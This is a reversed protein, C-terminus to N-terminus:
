ISVAEYKASFEDPKCIDLKGDDPNQIIWDDWDLRCDGERTIICLRDVGRDNLDPFLTEERLWTPWVSCTRRCEKTMQFAEVVIPKTRYRPM